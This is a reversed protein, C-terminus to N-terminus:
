RLNLRGGEKGIQKSAIEADIGHSGADVTIPEPRQDIRQSSEPVQFM